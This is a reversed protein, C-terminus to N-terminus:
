APRRGARDALTLIRSVVEDLTLDTSDITVVGDAATQFDVLASDAQDRKLVQAVLADHSMRGGMEAGRRALRVEPDAQLLVRVDADPAVVTTTDRGELVFAGEAIISRQLNVLIERCEANTSVASVWTSVSPLRIEDTVDQGGIFVHTDEPDTTIDLDMTRCYAAIAEPDDHDVDDRICGVAVARYMAGTDLYRCDLIRAVLKSTTSKGSGAPGDIAITFRTM